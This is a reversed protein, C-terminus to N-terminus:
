PMGVGSTTVACGLMLTFDAAQAVGSVNEIGGIWATVPGRRYGVGASLEVVTGELVASHLDRFPSTFLHQQLFLSWRPNAVWEFGVAQVLFPDVPLKAQSVRGLPLVGSVNGFFWVRRVILPADLALGGAIEWTGSGWVASARGSPVEVALRTSLRTGSTRAWVEKKGEIAVDGLELYQKPGHFLTQRNRRVWFGGFSNNPFLRREPNFASFLDETTDIVPDLFGGFRSLFPVDLSLEGKSWLGLSARLATRNQEFKLLAEVAGHDTAIINSQASEVGLRLEGAEVTHAAVFPLHLFILRLPQFNRVPLPGM